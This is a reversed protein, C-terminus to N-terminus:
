IFSVPNLSPGECLTWSEIVYGAGKKLFSLSHERYSSKSVSGILLADDMWFTKPTYVKKPKYHTISVLARRSESWSIQELGVDKRCFIM